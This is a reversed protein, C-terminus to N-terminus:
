GYSRNPLTIIRIPHQKFAGSWKNIKLEDLPDKLKRSHPPPIAGPIVHRVSYLGDPAHSGSFSIQVYKRLM